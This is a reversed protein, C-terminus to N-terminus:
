IHTGVLLSMWKRRTLNRKKDRDLEVVQGLRPKLNNSQHNASLLKTQFPAEQYMHPESMEIMM